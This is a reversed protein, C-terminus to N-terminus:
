CKQNNELLEQIKDWTLNIISRRSQIIIQDCEFVNTCGSVCQIGYSDLIGKCIM